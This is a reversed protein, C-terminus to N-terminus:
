SFFPFILLWKLNSKKCETSTSMLCHGSLREVTLYYIVLVPLRKCCVIKIFGFFFVFLCPKPFGIMCRIRSDRTITYCSNCLFQYGGYLRGTLFQDEVHPDVKAQSKRNALKRQLHNSRKKTLVDEEAEVQYPLFPLFSTPLSSPLLPQLCYSHSPSYIRGLTCVTQESIV